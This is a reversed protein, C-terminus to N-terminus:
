QDGSLFNTGTVSKDAAKGSLCIIWVLFKSPGSPQVWIKHSLTLSQMWCPRYVCLSRSGPIAWSLSGKWREEKKSAGVNKFRWTSKMNTFVKLISPVEFWIVGDTSINEKNMWEQCWTYKLPKVICWPKSPAWCRNLMERGQDQGNTSSSLKLIFFGTDKSKPHM